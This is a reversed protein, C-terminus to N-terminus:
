PPVIWLSSNNKLSNQRLSLELVYMERARAWRACARPGGCINIKPERHHFLLVPMPFASANALAKIWAFGQSGCNVKSLPSGM